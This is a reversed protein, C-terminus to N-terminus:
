ADDEVGHVQILHDVAATGSINYRVTDGTSLFFDLPMPAVVWPNNNTLSNFIFGASEMYGADGAFMSDTPQQSDRERTGSFLDANASYNNHFNSETGPTGILVSYHFTGAGGELLFLVRVRASKDAPVTYVTVTAEATASNEGLIGIKAAM